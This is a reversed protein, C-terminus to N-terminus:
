NMLFLHTRGPEIENPYEKSKNVVPFTICSEPCVGILKLDLFNNIMM